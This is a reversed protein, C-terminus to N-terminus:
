EERLNEIVKLISNILKNLYIEKRLVKQYEQQLYFDKGEEEAIISISFDSRRSGYDKPGRRFVKKKPKKQPIWYFKLERKLDKLDNGLINGFIM